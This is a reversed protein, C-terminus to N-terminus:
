GNLFMRVFLTQDHNVAEDFASKLGAEGDIQKVGSADMASAGGGHAAVGALLAALIVGAVRAMKHIHVSSLLVYIRLFCHMLLHARLM